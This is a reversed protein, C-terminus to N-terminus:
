GLNRLERLAVSLMAADPTGSARLENLLQTVREIARHNRDQWAALLAGPEDITFATLCEGHSEAVILTRCTIERVSDGTQATVGTVRDGERTVGFVLECMSGPTFGDVIFLDRDWCM